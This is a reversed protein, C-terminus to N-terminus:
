KYLKEIKKATRKEEINGFEKAEALDFERGYLNSTRRELQMEENARIIDRALLTSRNESRMHKIARRAIEQGNTTLEANLQHTAGKSVSMGPATSQILRKVKPNYLALERKELKELAQRNTHAELDIQESFLQKKISQAAIKSSVTSAVEPTGIGRRHNHMEISREHRKIRLIRGDKLKRTHSKVNIKRRHM